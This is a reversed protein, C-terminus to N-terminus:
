SSSFTHFPILISKKFYSEKDRNTQLNQGLPPEM